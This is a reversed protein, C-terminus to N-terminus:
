KIYEITIIETNSTGELHDNVKITNVYNYKDFTYENSLWSSGNLTTETRKFLLEKNHKGYMYGLGDIRSWGDVTSVYNATLYNIDINTKKNEVQYYTFTSSNTSKINDASWVFDSIYQSNESKIEKILLSDDNYTFEIATPNANLTDLSMNIFGDQNIKHKVVHKSGNYFVTEIMLSDSYKIECSDTEKNDIELSNFVIKSIRNKDDYKFLLEYVSNFNIRSILREGIDNTPFDPIGSDGNEVKDNTCSLLSIFFSFFIIYTLKQIIM